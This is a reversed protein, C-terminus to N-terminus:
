FDADREIIATPDSDERVEVKVPNTVMALRDMFFSAIGYVNPAKAGLMQGLDRNKLEMALSLLVARHREWQEGDTEQFGERSFTATVKYQHGHPKDGCWANDVKHGAGFRVTASDTYRM